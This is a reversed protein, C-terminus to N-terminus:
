IEVSKSFRQSFVNYEWSMNEKKRRAVKTANPMCNLLSVVDDTKYFM